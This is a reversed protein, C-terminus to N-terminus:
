RLEDSPGPEFETGRLREPTPTLWAFFMAVAMVVGVLAVFPLQESTWDWEAITAVIFVVVPSLLGAVFSRSGNLKAEPYLWRCLGLLGLGFGGTLVILVVGVIVAVERESSDGAGFLAIAGIATLLSGPLFFAFAGKVVELLSVGRSARVLSSDDGVREDTTHQRDDMTVM